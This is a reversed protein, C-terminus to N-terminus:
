AEKVKGWGSVLNKPKPHPCKEVVVMSDYFAISTASKTFETVGDGWQHYGNLEDIKHKMFEIYSKPQLLGGGYPPFYSTHTDECIYISTAKMAPFCVEFTKIQQDMTHGGDDLLADMPGAFAVLEALFAPDGQDGILIETNGSSFQRCSPDIDVGIIRAKPGLYDRWMSLSGGGQVGIEVFTIDGGRLHEFYREYISFYCDWKSSTHGLNSMFWPKLVKSDEESVWSVMVM